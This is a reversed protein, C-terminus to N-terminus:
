AVEKLVDGLVEVLREIESAPRKETVAVLLEDANGMGMKKLDVGVMVGRKRGAEVVRAAEVPCRVVFEHFFEEGSYAMEYGDLECILKAAWHAKHYCQEAVERLGKGGLLSLYISARIAMLGQNTCINSTAKEYRIHQERTQLTLCYGRRGEGDRTEGVLRGPMKRMLKERVAFLGLYPGGYQLGIGLPQGEGVAIDAGCEGPGKLFGCAIPNFVAVGLTKKCEHVVDFLGQWDEIVGYVNPSQVVVCAVNDGNGGAMAGRLEVESVRGGKGEAVVVEVGDLGGVMTRVVDLYQGNVTGAVVVRKKGTVNLAMMVAEGVASAGEYLSANAVDMGTLRSLQTQFEFFAQLAGQSAEAQYPTYATLFEGRGSLEDVLVPVFHDYAGCGAFCILDDSTKNVGMLEKLRRQLGLESVGGGTGGGVGGGKKGRCGEKEKRKGVECEGIRLEGELRCEMPLGGFLEDVSEVGIVGLMEARQEDTIQVYDM